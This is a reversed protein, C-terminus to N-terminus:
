LVIHRHKMVCFEAISKNHFHYIVILYLINRPENELAQKINKQLSVTGFAIM